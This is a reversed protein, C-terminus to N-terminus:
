LQMVADLHLVHLSLICRQPLSSSLNVHHQLPEFTVTELVLPNSFSSQRPLSRPMISAGRRISWSSSFPTTRLVLYSPPSQITSKYLQSFVHSTKLYYMLYEHRNRFELSRGDLFKSVFPVRPFHSSASSLCDLSPLLSRLTAQHALPM